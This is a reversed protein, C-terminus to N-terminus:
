STGSGKELPLSSTVRIAQIINRDGDRYAVLIDIDDAQKRACSPELIRQRSFAKGQGIM